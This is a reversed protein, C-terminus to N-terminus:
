AAGSKGLLSRLWSRRRQLTETLERLAVQTETSLLDVRRALLEVRSLLAEQLQDDRVQAAQALHALHEGTSALGAHIGPLVTDTLTRQLDDIREDHASASAQMRDGLSSMASAQARLQEIQLDLRSLAERAQGVSSEGMAQLSQNISQMDTHVRAAQDGLGSLVALLHGQQDAASKGANYIGLNVNQLDERILQLGAQLQAGSADVRESVAALMTEKAAIEREKAQLAADREALLGQLGAMEAHSGRLAQLLDQAQFDSKLRAGLFEFLRNIAEAEDSGAPVLLDQLVARSQRGVALVGLGHSHGFEYSPYQGGIEKWYKWVGFDREKVNSDHFLVVARDSLRPLWSEFDHRVAEYTHLGDIHLFDIAGDAFYGLAEDFTMRLLQSFGAYHRQNYQDLEDYVSDGYEGAHEDGLWTDVAYCRTDLKAEEVAQCFSLFSTGRHTGLEVLVKPRIAHILWAGFPIHGTWASLPMVRPRLFMGPNLPFKYTM